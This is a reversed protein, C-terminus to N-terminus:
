GYFSLLGLYTNHINDDKYSNEPFNSYFPKAMEGTFTHPYLPSGTFAIDTTARLEGFRCDVSGKEELISLAHPCQQCDNETEFLIARNNRRATILDDDKLGELPTMDKVQKGACKCASPIPLGFPCSHLKGRLM